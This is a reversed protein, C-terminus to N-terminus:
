LYSKHNSQKHTCTNCKDRMWKSPSKKFEKCNCNVKLCHGYTMEPINSKSKVHGINANVNINRNPNVVNTNARIKTNIIPKTLPPPNTPKSNGFKAMQKKKLM